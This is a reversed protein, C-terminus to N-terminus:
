FRYRVGAQIRRGPNVSVGWRYEARVPSYYKDDFVDSVSVYYRWNDTQYHMRLDVENIDGLDFAIGGADDGGNFVRGWGPYLDKYVWGIGFGLGQLPGELVAYNAFLSSGVKPTNVPRAGSPAVDGGGVESGKYEADLYALSWFVDFADTLNGSISLEVGQVNQTGVPISFGPNLRDPNTLGSREMDFIAGSISARDDLIDGKFGIEIQDGKEPPLPQGAPNGPDFLRNFSSDPEYTEGWNAYLNIDDTIAYTIGIQPVFEDTSNEREPVRSYPTSDRDVPFGARASREIVDDFTFRGSLLIHLRDTPNVLAQLTVGAYATEQIADYFYYFDDPNPLPHVASPEPLLRYGVGGGAAYQAYVGDGNDDIYDFSFLSDTKYNAYDVGIFLTHERGMLSVDGILNVEAGWLDDNEVSWYTYCGAPIIGNEDAHGDASCSIVTKDVNSAQANFRLTWADNLDHDLKVTSLLVDVNRDSWPQGFFHERSTPLVRYQEPAFEQLGTGWHATDEHEQYNLSAVIRTNEGADWAISPAIIWAEDASYDIYTDSDRYVGILRYQWSEDFTIADAFDFEARYSNFSGAEFGIEHVGDATPQKTVANITGGLSNQGFLASTPGKVLEFREFTALDLDINGPFRFGDVRVANAGQITFGRFFNTPFDDLRHATGVSADVRYVDQVKRVNAMEILDETIVSVSQAIDKLDMNMKTASFAERHRLTVKGHVVIEEIAEPEADERNSSTPEDAAQANADGAPLLVNCAVAVPACLIAAKASLAAKVADALTSRARLSEEVM